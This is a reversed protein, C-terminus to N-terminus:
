IYTADIKQEDCFIEETMRTFVLNKKYNNLDTPIYIAKPKLITKVIENPINIGAAVSLYIWGTLRPNIEILYFKKTSEDYIFELEFPGVWKLQSIINKTIANLTEDFITMGSWTSGDKINIGLKKIQIYKLINNNEDCFGAIAFFDGLVFKQIICNGRGGGWWDRIHQCYMKTMELNKSVYFDKVPGKCVQPYGIRKAKEELDKKGHIVETKPMDIKKLKNLNSKTSREFASKTPLLTRIGLNSIEKKLKIFLAVDSDYCPIIVELNTSKKIKKLDDLFKQDDAYMNETTKVDDFYDLEIAPTRPDNTIGIVTHGAKKLSRATGLGAGPSSVHTIATVGVVTM